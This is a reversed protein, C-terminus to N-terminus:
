RRAIVATGHFECGDENLNVVSVNVSTVTTQDYYIFQGVVQTMTGFDFPNMSGQVVTTNSVVPPLNNIFEEWSLAAPAAALNEVFVYADGGYCQFLLELSSPPFTAPTSVGSAEAVNVDIPLVTSGSCGASGNPAISAIASGDPCSQSTADQFQSASHGDLLDANLNKVKTSSNVVLPPDTGPVDIAVGSATASKDSNTVKLVASPTSGELQSRANARNDEGLNFVKGVGTGAFAATGALTVLSIASGLAVGKLFTAKM